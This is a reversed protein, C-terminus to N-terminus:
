NWVLLSQLSLFFQRNGDDGALLLPNIEIETVETIEQENEDKLHWDGMGMGVRGKFPLSFGLLVV